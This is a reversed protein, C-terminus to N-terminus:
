VREGGTESPVARLITPSLQRSYGVVIGLWRGSGGGGERVVAGSGGAGLHGGTYAPSKCQRESQNRRYVAESRHLGDLTIWKPM